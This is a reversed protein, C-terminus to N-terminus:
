TRIHVAFSVIDDPVNETRQWGDVRSAVSGFVDGSFAVVKDNCSPLSSSIFDSPIL